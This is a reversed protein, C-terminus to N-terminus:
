TSSVNILIPLDKTDSLSATVFLQNNLYKIKTEVNRGTYYEGSSFARIAKIKDNINGILM